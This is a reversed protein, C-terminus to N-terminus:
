NHTVTQQPQIQQEMTEKRKQEPEQKEEKKKKRGCILRTTQRPAKFNPKILWQRGTLYLMAQRPSKLSAKM